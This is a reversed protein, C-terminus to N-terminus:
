TASAGGGCLRCPALGRAEADARPLHEVDDKGEVIPCDLAHSLEGDPVVAVTGTPTATPHGNARPETAVQGDVLLVAHLDAIRDDMADLRDALRRQDHGAVLVAGVIVLAVGGLGGSLVYPLQRAVLVERSVGLWGVVLAAAGAAILLWGLAPRVLGTVYARVEDLSPADRASRDAPRRTPPATTELPEPPTTM